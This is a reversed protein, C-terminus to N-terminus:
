PPRRSSSSNPPVDTQVKVSSHEPFSAFEHGKSNKADMHGSGDQLYVPM